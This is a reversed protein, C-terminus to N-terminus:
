HFFLAGYVSITCLTESILVGTGEFLPTVEGDADNFGAFAGAILIAMVLWVLLWWPCIILVCVQSLVGAIVALTTHLRRTEKRVMPTIAAGMLCVVTLFGFFETGDPLLELLQPMLLVSVAVLWASWVWRRGGRLSYVFASISEPTEPSRKLVVVVYSVAILM